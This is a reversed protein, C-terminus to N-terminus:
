VQIRSRHRSNSQDHPVIARPLIGITPPLSSRSSLTLASPSVTELLKLQSTSSVLENRELSDSDRRELFVDAEDLLLV